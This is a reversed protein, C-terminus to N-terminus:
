MHNDARKKLFIPHNLQATHNKFNLFEPNIAAVRYMVHLFAIDERKTCIDGKAARAKLIILWNTFLIM